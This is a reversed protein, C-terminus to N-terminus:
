LYHSLLERQAKTHAMSPRLAGGTEINNNNSPMRTSSDQTFRAAAQQLPSNVSIMSSGMGGVTAHSQPGGRDASSTRGVMGSFSQRLDESISGSAAARNM